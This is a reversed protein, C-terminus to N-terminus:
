DFLFFDFSSKEGIKKISKDKVNYVYIQNNRFIDLETANTPITSFVLTGNKATPNLKFLLENDINVDLPTFVNDILSYSFLRTTVKQNERKILLLPKDNSWIEASFSFFCVDTKDVAM